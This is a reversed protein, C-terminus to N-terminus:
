RGESGVGKQALAMLSLGFPLSLFPLVYREAEFIRRLATNVSRAPMREDSTRRGFTKKLLRMAVVAPFLFSNFYTQHRLELEAGRIASLLSSRRYRRRHHLIEDHASWLFPYAPVTVLLHGSPRLQEGLARLGARDDELHELVDLAVVLDFGRAEFPVADPLSGERVDFDGKQRALNRAEENPEFASVRGFTRLMALNGGTGCGAELIRAADPLDLHRSLNEAILRRRAVFWWHIEEIGAMQRYVHQEM